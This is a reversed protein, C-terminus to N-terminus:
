DLSELLREKELELSFAVYTTVAELELALARVGGTNGTAPRRLRKELGDFSKQQKLLDDRRKDLQALSDAYQRRLESLQAALKARQASVQAAEADLARYASESRALTLERRRYFARLREREVPDRERRIRRSLQALDLRLAAVEDAVLVGERNLAALKTQLPDDRAQLEDFRSRFGDGLEQRVTALDDLQKAVRVRGTDIDRRLAKKRDEARDKEKQRTDTKAALLRRYEALVEDRADNAAQALDKPLRALTRRRVLKLTGAPVRDAGPGEYYGLVDGLLAATEILRLRRDTSLPSAQAAAALLRALDDLETLAKADKKLLALLWIKARQPGIAQPNLAIAKEAYSLADDYRRGRIDVLAKAWHVEWRSPHDNLVRRFQADAAQRADLSKPWGVELLRAIGSKLSSPEAARCAAPRLQMVGSLVLLLPLLLPARRCM